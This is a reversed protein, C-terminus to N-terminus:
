IVIQYPSPMLSAQNKEFIDRDMLNRTSERKIQHFCILVYIQGGKRAQHEKNEALVLTPGHLYTTKLKRKVTSMQLNIKMSQGLTNRQLNSM